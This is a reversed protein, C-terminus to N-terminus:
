TKEFVVNKNNEFWKLLVLLLWLENSLDNQLSHNKIFFLVKERNFIEFLLNSEDEYLEHIMKNLFSGKLFWLDKPIGFGMKTRYVFEKNFDDALIEKLIYKGINNSFKFGSPIKM